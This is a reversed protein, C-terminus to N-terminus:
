SKCRKIMAEMIDAATGKNGVVTYIDEDVTNESVLIIYTCPETQGKRYIRDHSQYYDEFSHSMSYYIAYTCNKRMSNGTFTVGYKLTKPHAVIFQAEDDKFAQINADTDKSESYATTVTKGMSEILKVIARAEPKFNIWIVAKNDGLETLVDKLENLKDSHVQVVESDEDTDIIFGSALQRLKMIEVLKTQAPVARDELIVLRDREMQNYLKRAEKSLEVTRIIPPMDPPLDLCDKKSVFICGRSLMESFHDDYGERMQFNHGFYDTPEFYEARFKYFSDGFLARNVIRMQPFYEMNNNPAPKGSFLYAYEMKDAHAIVEKTTQTGMDRLISSEDVILGSHPWEQIDRRIKFSEPNIILVDAFEMLYQPVQAARLKRAAPLGWTDALALYEATKVNQSMPLVKLDPFFERHDAMWATKIISKPTIVVWKAALRDEIISYGLITKGTGTDFYFAYKRMYSAIDRGLRQHQMLFRHPRPEIEGRILGDVKSSILRDRKIHADLAKDITATPFAKVVYSLVELPYEWCGNPKNWKGCPLRRCREVDAYNCYLQIKNDLKTITAM